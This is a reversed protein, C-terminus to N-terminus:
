AEPAPLAGSLILYAYLGGCDVPLFAVIRLAVFFVTITVPPLPNM